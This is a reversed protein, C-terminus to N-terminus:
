FCEGNGQKKPILELNESVMIDTDVKSHKNTFYHKHNVWFLKNAVSEYKSFCELKNEKKINM